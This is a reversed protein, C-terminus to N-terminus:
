FAEYHFHIHNKNNIEHHKKTCFAGRMGWSMVYEKVTKTYKINGEGRSNLNLNEPRTLKEDNRGKYSLM